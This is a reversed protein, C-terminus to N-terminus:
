KIKELKMEMFPYWTNGDMSFAGSETWSDGDIKITYKIEGQPVKFGWVFDGEDNFEGKALTSQGQMVVSHFYYQAKDANFYIMAMAHHGLTEGSIGKGEVLLAMGDLKSEVKEEVSFTMKERTQQNMQWGEGKWEGVWGSLKKMEEKSVRASQANSNQSFLTAALMIMGIFLHQSLKLKQSTKM